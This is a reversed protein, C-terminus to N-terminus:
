FGETRAHGKVEDFDRGIRATPKKQLLAKLLEKSSPSFGPLSLKPESKVILEFLSPYLSAPICLPQSVYECAPHMCMNTDMDPYMFMHMHHFVLAALNM